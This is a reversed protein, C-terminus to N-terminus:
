SLETQLSCTYTQPHAGSRLTSTWPFIGSCLPPSECGKGFAKKHRSVSLFLVPLFPFVNTVVSTCGVWPWCGLISQDTFWFEPCFSCGCGTLLCLTDGTALVCHLPKWIHWVAPLSPYPSRSSSLQYCLNRQVGLGLACSCWFFTQVETGGFGLCLSVHNFPFTPELETDILISSCIRDQSSFIIGHPYLELIIYPHNLFFSIIILKEDICFCPSMQM